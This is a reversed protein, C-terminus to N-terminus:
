DFLRGFLGQSVGVSEIKSIFMELTRRRVFGVKILVRRDTIVLESTTYVVVGPLVVVVPLFLALWGAPSHSEAQIGIAMPLALFVLLFFALIGTGVFIIWHVSTKYLPTENPQLTSSAYSGLSDRSIQPLEVPRTARLAAPRVPPPTSRQAFGPVDSLPTWDEAGEYWALDTLQITGALLDSRVQDETYPGFQEGNRHIYLEM